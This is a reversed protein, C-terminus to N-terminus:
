LGCWTSILTCSPPESCTWGLPTWPPRHTSAAGPSALLDLSIGKQEKTPCVSMSQARRDGTKFLKLYIMRATAQRHTDSVLGLPDQDM